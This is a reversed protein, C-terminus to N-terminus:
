DIMLKPHPCPKGAVITFQQWSASLCMQLSLLEGEDGRSAWSSSRGPCGRFPEVFYTRWRGNFFDKLVKCSPPAFAQAEEKSIETVKKFAFTRPADTDAKHKKAPKPGPVKLQNAFSAFPKIYHQREKHNEKRQEKFDKPACASVACSSVHSCSVACRTAARCLM